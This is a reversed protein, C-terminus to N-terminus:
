RRENAEKKPAISQVANSRVSSKSRKDQADRKRVDVIPFHEGGELTISGTGGARIEWTAPYGHFNARGRVFCPLFDYHDHIERQTVIAARSLFTKVQAASLKFENCFEDASADDVGTSTVVVDTATGLAPGVALAQMAPLLLILALLSKMSRLLVNKYVAPREKAPGSCYNTLGGPM